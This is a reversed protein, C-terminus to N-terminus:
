GEKGQAAEAEDKLRAADESTPLDERGFTERCTKEIMLEVVEGQSKGLKYSLALLGNYRSPRIAFNVRKSKTEAKDNAAKLAAELEAIREDKEALQRAAEALNAAKKAAHENMPPADHRAAEMKDAPTNVIAGLQTNSPAAKATEASKFDFTKSM